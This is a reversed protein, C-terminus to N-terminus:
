MCIIIVGAAESSWHILERGNNIIRLPKNEIYTNLREEILVRVEGSNANAECIDLPSASRPQFSHFLVQESNNSLWEPETKEKAISTPSKRLRFM